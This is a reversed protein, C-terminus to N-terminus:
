TAEPKAATAAEQDLNGGLEFHQWDESLSPLGAAKELATLATDFQKVDKGKFTDLLKGGIEAGLYLYHSQLWNTASLRKTRLQQDGSPPTNGKQLNYIRTGIEITWRYAEQYAELRKDLAALQLRNRQAINELQEARESRYEEIKRATSRNGTVTVIM